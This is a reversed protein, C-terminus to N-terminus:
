ITCSGDDCGRVDRDIKAAIPPIRLAPLIPWYAPIQRFIARVAEVGRLIEGSGAREVVIEGLKLPGTPPTETSSRIRSLWDFRHHWRAIRECRACEPHRYITIRHSM